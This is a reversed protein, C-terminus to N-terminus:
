EPRAPRMNRIGTIKWEEGSKLAIFTSWMKREGITYRADAIAVTSTIFRIREVELIRNGPNNQSSRLMGEVLAARGQRWIGSSVLQDADETFLLSIKEPDQNQRAEAYAAVLDTIAQVEINDSQAHLLCSSILFFIVLKWHLMQSKKFYEM